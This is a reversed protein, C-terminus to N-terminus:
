DDHAYQGYVVVIYRVSKFHGEVGFDAWKDLEELIYARTRKPQLGLSNGCLYVAPTHPKRIQAGEETKPVLFQTRHHGLSASADLRQAFTVDTIDTNDRLAAALIEAM